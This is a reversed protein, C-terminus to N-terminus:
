RILTHGGNCYIWRRIRGPGSGVCQTPRFDSGVAGVAAGPCASGETPLDICDHAKPAERAGLASLIFFIAKLFDENYTSSYKEATNQLNM